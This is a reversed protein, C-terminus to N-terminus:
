YNLIKADILEKLKNSKQPDMVELIKQRQRASDINNSLLEVAGINFHAEPLGPSIDLAKQYYEKAHSLEGLRFYADALNNYVRADGNLNSSSSSEILNKCSEVAKQYKANYLYVACLNYKAEAYGTNLKLAQEYSSSAQEYNKLDLYANGLSLWAQPYDPKIEVAKKLSTM